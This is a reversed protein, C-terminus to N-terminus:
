RGTLVASFGGAMQQKKDLDAERTRMYCYGGHFSTHACTKASCCAEACAKISRWRAVTDGDDFRCGYSVM